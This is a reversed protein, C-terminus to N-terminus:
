TSMDTLVFVNEHGDSSRKPQTCDIALVEMPDTISTCTLPASTHLFIDKALACQKCQKVWSQVDSDVVPCYYSRMMM